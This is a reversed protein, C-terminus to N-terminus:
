REQMGKNFHLIHTADPGEIPSFGLRMYLRAAGENVARLRVSRFNRSAEEILASVLARGVGNDRWAPRVYVKRIRGVDARGAFPDCNLGGVAVLVGDDLCGCLVEGPAQFRNTKSEWERVLTEVFVYGEEQAERQLTEFGPLPLEIKSISTM